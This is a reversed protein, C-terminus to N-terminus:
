RDWTYVACAMGDEEVTERLVFGLRELFPDAKTYGAYICICLPKDKDTRNSLAHNLLTRGYGKRQHDPHVFLMIVENREPWRDSDAIACVAIFEEGDKIVYYDDELSIKVKWLQDEGFAKKMLETMTDCDELSLEEGHIVTIEM